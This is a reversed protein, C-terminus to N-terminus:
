KTRITSTTSPVSSEPAKDVNGKIQLVKVGATTTVTISKNIAGIRNSDYTVKISGKKGPQIPDTSHKPVTCGCTSKASLITIPEKGVNTFEFEYSTPTGQKVNGFDHVEQKFKMLHTKDEGSQVVSSTTNSKSPTLKKGQAFSVAVSCVLIGATFIIKKM